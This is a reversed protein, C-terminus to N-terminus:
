AGSLRRASVELMVEKSSIVVYLSPSVLWLVQIKPFSCSLNTFTRGQLFPSGTHISSDESGSPGKKKMYEVTKLLSLSRRCNVPKSRARRVLTLMAGAWSCGLLQANM